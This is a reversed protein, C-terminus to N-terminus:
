DGMIRCDGPYSGFNAGFSLAGCEHYEAEAQHPDYYGEQEYISAQNCCYTKAQMSEPIEPAYVVDDDSSSTPYNDNSNDEPYEYSNSSDSHYGGNYYDAGYSHFCSGDNHIATSDYNDASPDTCGYESYAFANGSILLFIFFTLLTNTLKM